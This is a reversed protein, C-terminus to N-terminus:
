LIHYVSIYFKFGVFLYVYKPPYISLLKKYHRATATDGLGKCIAPIKEWCGGWGELHLAWAEKPFDEPIGNKRKICAMHDENEHKAKGM